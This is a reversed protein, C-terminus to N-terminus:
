LSIKGSPEYRPAIHLPIGSYPGGNLSELIKRRAMAPTNRIASLHGLMVASPLNRSAELAEKLL